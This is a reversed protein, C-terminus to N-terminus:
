AAANGKPAVRDLVAVTPDPLVINIRKSVATDILQHTKIADYAYKTHIDFICGNTVIAPQLNNFITALSPISGGVGAKEPSREVM